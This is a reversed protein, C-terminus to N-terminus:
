VPRFRVTKSGCSTAMGKSINLAISRLMRPLLMNFVKEFVTNCSAKCSSDRAMYMCGMCNTNTVMTGPGACSGCALRKAACRTM